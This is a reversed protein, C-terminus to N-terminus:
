LIRLAERLIKDATEEKTGNADIAVLEGGKCMDKFGGYVREFFEIDERELRDSDDAGGKRKFGDEPTIDLFLALDVKIPSVTHANVNRVFDLDLGRGYGQYALTSYIFRDCVVVKGADLAPSVIKNLHDRRAASYLYLETIADPSHAPDLIMRRLEEALRTGGPERTAVVDFGRATLAETLLKSQKSKGAGECGELVIFKGKKM